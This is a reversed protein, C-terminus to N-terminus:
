EIPVSYTLAGVPNGKGVTNYNEHCMTCKPLVVPVPTIARLYPKGDREEVQDYFAKGAKLQKIGERDFDDKAVNKASYPQGTADILRVEHSGKDSVQKFWVVAARGAPLDKKTHVYHETILVVATKYVDDLMRVTKRAREVAEPSPAKGKQALAPSAQEAMGFAAAAVAALILVRKGIM